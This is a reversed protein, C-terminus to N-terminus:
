KKEAPAPVATPAPAMEKAKETTKEAETASKEAAKKKAAKKKAAKKKAAKKEVKKEAKEAKEAPTPMAANDAAFAFGTVSMAFALAFLVSLMKKM